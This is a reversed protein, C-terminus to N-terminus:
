CLENRVECGEYFIFNAQEASAEDIFLGLLPVPESKFTSGMVEAALFPIFEEVLDCRFLHLVILKQLHNLQNIPTPFQFMKNIMDQNLFNQWESQKKRITEYFNPMDIDPIIAQLFNICKIFKYKSNAEHSLDALENNIEQLIISQRVM